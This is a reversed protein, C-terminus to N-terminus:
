RLEAESIHNNRTFYMILSLIVFLALSGVLLSGTELNLLLYIFAYLVAVSATCFVAIRSRLFGIFYGGLATVTMGSAILYAWGFALYESISLLLLYFLCLSFGTVIYQIYNVEQRTITEVLYIAAFVLLIILFSYKTARGTQQYQSVPVMLDVYFVPDYEGFTNMETVTWQAEFGEDTVNREDPLFAGGFSPSPHDSRIDVNFAAAEPRFRLSKAGKTRIDISYDISSGAAFGAPDLEIRLGDDALEFQYERGNVSATINDELGRMEGLSIYMYLKDKYVAFDDDSLEFHGTIGLDARYVPVDYISRHLTTVSVDGTVKAVEPEVVRVADKLLTEGKSNVEKSQYPIKLSPPYIDQVGAWQKSVEIETEASLEERESILFNVLLIPIQLVLVALLIFVGKKLMSRGFTNEKTM